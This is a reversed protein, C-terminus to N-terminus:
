NLEADLWAMFDRSALMAREFDAETANGIGRHVLPNRKDYLASKWHKYENTQDPPTSTFQSAWRFLDRIINGSSIAEALPRTRGRSIPLSTVGHRQCCEFLTTQVYVEFATELHILALDHEAYRASQMEAQCILLEHLAPKKGSALARALEDVEPQSLQAVGWGGHRPHHMTMHWIPEVLTAEIHDDTFTYQSAKSSIVVPPRHKGHVGALFRHSVAKYNDLFWLLHSWTSEILTSETSRELDIAREVFVNVVSYIINNVVGGTFQRLEDEVEFELIKKQEGNPGQWNGSKMPRGLWSKDESSYSFMLAGQRSNVTVAVREERHFCIFFPEPLELNVTLPFTVRYLVM